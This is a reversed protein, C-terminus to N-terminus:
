RNNNTNHETREVFTRFILQSVPDNFSYEPHWQIAQIAPNSALYVGEVIDDESYAMARLAPALTCVAQHHYSNVGLELSPILTALPTDPVIRVRHWVRDYPAVMQHSTASPHETPLDQYLTGGFHANMLQIGRCIGLLPRNNAVAFDLIRCDVSDREDCPEGCQASREAGYLAPAVDHGGTLLFGDCVACLQELDADAIIHPLIIPIGGVERIADVYNPLMWISHREDDWLPTVGIIPRKKKM